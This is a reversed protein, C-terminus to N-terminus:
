CSIGSSQFIIKFVTGKGSRSRFKIKADIAQAIQYVINLGLGSGRKIDNLTDCQYFKNFIHKQENKSIGHGDDAVWFSRGDNGIKIQSHAYKLANELLNRVIREILFQDQFIMVNELRLSFKVNRDVAAEQYAEVLDELLKKLDFRQKQVPMCGSKLRDADVFDNLMNILQRNQKRLGELMELGRSSCEKELKEMLLNMNQLPQRIDHGIQAACRVLEDKNAALDSVDQFVGAIKAEGNEYIIGAMFRCLKKEGAPTVIRVVGFTDQHSRLLEKLKQKYVVLDESYIQERILNRRLMKGTSTVGFIRYMEESWYFKKQVIDLEWYGLRAGREAFMMRQSGVHLLHTLLRKETIDDLCLWVSKETPYVYVIYYRERFSWYFHHPYQQYLSTGVNQRLFVTDEKSFIDDLRCKEKKGGCFVCAAKNNLFLVGGDKAVELLLNTTIDAVFDPRFNKQDKM